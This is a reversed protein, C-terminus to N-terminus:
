SGWTVQLEAETPNQGIYRLVQRLQNTTISGEGSSDYLVFAEKFKFIEKKCQNIGDKKEVQFKGIQESTLYSSAMHM